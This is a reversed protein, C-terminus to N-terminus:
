RRVWLDSLMDGLLQRGTYLRSKVTKVPIGLTAAIDDYSLEAFYRLVIAERYIGALQQLASEIARRREAEDLAADPRGMAPMEPDVGESPRRDRLANLCDNRLIRYIWSFFRHEPKFSALHEYASVFANQTADTADAHNGLLRYAVNFLTRHHREVLREYAASDGALCKRVLEADEADNPLYVRPAWFNTLKDSGRMEHFVFVNGLSAVRGPKERDFAGVMLAYGDEMDGPAEADPLRIRQNLRYRHRTQPSAGVRNDDIQRGDVIEAAGPHSREFRDRMSQRALAALDNHAAGAPRHLQREREAPRARVDRHFGGQFAGNGPDRRFGTRLSSRLARHSLVAM